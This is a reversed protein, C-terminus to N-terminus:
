HIASGNSHSGGLWDGINVIAGIVFWQHVSTASVLTIFTQDDRPPNTKPKYNIFPLYNKAETEPNPEKTNIEGVFLDLAAKAYDLEGAKGIGAKDRIIAANLARVKDDVTSLLAKFIEDLLYAGPLWADPKEGQHGKGKPGESTEFDHPIGGKSTEATAKAAMFYPRMLDAGFSFTDESEIVRRLNKNIQGSNLKEAYDGVMLLGKGRQTHDHHRADLPGKAAEIQRQLLKRIRKVEDDIEDFDPFERKPAPALTKWLREETDRFSDPNPEFGLNIDKMRTQEKENM